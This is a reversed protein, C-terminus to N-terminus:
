SLARDRIPRSWPPCPFGLVYLEMGHPMEEWNGTKENIVLVKDELVKRNTMDRVLM